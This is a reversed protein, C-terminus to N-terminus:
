GIGILVATFWFNNIGSGSIGTTRVGRRIRGVVRHFHRDNMCRQLRNPDLQTTRM